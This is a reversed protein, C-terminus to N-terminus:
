AALATKGLEVAKFKYYDEPVCPHVHGGMSRHFARHYNACLVVYNSPEDKGGSQVSLLHHLELMRKDTVGSIDCKADPDNLIFRDLWYKHKGGKFSKGVRCQQCDFSNLGHFSGYRGVSENPCLSCKFTLLVKTNLVDEDKVELLYPAPLYRRVGDKRLEGKSNAGRSPSMIQRYAFAEPPLRYGLYEYYRFTGTRVKVFAM